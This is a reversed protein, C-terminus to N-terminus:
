AGYKLLKQANALLLPMAEYMRFRGLGGRRATRETFRELQDPLVWRSFLLFPSPHWSHAKLTAPTSHDGTLAFVDPQLALLEPILGDIEELVRVKRDFDGDEGASDTYKLHLFFFDFREWCDRLTRIEDQMTTGTPVIEMGVLRALGRYMPYSAIAAANLQYLDRVTPIEPRRAFGRMLIGNAVPEDALIARAKRAFEGALRATREAADTRPQPELPPVGTVQPDTDTVQDSLNEGRLVFVARYDMEPEVFVEADPFQIARLRKVLPASRETPIRGARRDVIGGQADLTCFNLRAAVDGPQIPFGVGLASLVGRGVQYQLPDYGFISLHGPGSGPTIGPSVLEAYGLSSRGALTDLNPTRATEMETLGTEPHPLGALGDCVVLLIKSPTSRALQSITASTAQIQTV